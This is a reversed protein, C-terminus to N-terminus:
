SQARDRHPLCAKSAVPSQSCSSFYRCTIEGVQGLNEVVWVVRFKARSFLGGIGSRGASPVAWVLRVLWCWRGVFLIFNRLTPRTAMMVRPRYAPLFTCLQWEFDGRARKAQGRKRETRFKSTSSPPAQYM